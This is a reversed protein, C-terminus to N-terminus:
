KSMGDYDGDLGPLYSNSFRISDIFKTAIKEPPLTTDVIPYFPYVTNGVKMPVTETTSLVAIRAIFIGFEDLLPYRTVLCHKDKTIDVAAMYLLDTWTMARSSITSMESTSTSDTRMGNFHLYFKKTGKVPIEIKNFRSEPDKMFGDLMKKYYKETFYSAPNVLEYSGLNEGTIPDVIMKANEQDIVNREFFNKLWAVMFPYCLDCIHSVPIAGYGFKTMLDEPREGHFTPSTIVARACYDVNKGMLYKRLLGNKKELKNKFYNYIDVLLNQIKLNTAHFQTDFMDRNKVMTCQRILTAYMQNIDETEGGGTRTTRIDRYYAPIVICYQTFIERKPTKLILDIRENRMGGQENYKWKINDWNDYLFEIGTFGNEKDLVLYGEDSISYYGDGNIIKEVNRFLRKMAKYIHPHFFHGYLNIYAFTNKRSQTTVGFIENSVLGQPHPVDGRQFLVGSSVEELKNLKIFEETDFLDLRM